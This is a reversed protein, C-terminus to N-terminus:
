QFDMENSADIRFYSNGYAYTTWNDWNSNITVIGTDMDPNFFFDRSKIYCRFNCAKRPLYIENESQM